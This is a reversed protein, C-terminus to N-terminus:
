QPQINAQKVVAAWKELDARDVADDQTFDAFPVRRAVARLEYSFFDASGPPPTTEGRLRLWPGIEAAILKVSSGDQTTGDFQYVDFPAAVPAVMVSAYSRARSASGRAANPPM